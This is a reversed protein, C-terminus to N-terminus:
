KLLYLKTDHVDVEVTYLKSFTGVDKKAWVDYIDAMDEIGVADFCITLNAPSDNLNPLAIAHRGDTLHRVWAETPETNCHTMNVVDGPKANYDQNIMLADENFLLEKMIPTIDRIDTGIMMPSSAVAYVSFETRYENDTQKPCHQPKKPNPTLLCGEGGTMMMDGYAWGYPGSWSGRNRLADIQQLTSSFKDHHDGTARWVQAIDSAYGWNEMKDYPGRCLELIMERGTANMAKSFNKHGEESCYDGCYDLKVYDVEWSAFLNADEQYHQYSGPAWGGHCTKDGVSTYLGFKLGLSHVFDIVPKMGNPFWDPNPVLTGNSNRTPKWCDDLVIWNYGLKHMGNDVMAQATEM